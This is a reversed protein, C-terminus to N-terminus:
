GLQALDGFPELQRECLADGLELLLHLRGGLAELELLRRRQAVPQPLQALDLDVRSLGKLGRCRTGARRAGRAGMSSGGDGRSESVRAARMRSSGSRGPM